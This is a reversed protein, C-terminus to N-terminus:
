DHNSEKLDKYKDLFISLNKMKEEIDM